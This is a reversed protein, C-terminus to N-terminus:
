PATLVVQVPISYTGPRDLTWNYKSRLYLTQVTSNTAGGTAISTITASMDTYPGAPATAWQLDSRPKNNRATVPSFSWTTSSSSISVRWNANSRVEFTVSGPSGFGATYSADTPQPITVTSSALTVRTAQQITINLSSTATGGLTCTAQNNVTCTIQAGAQNSLGGVLVAVLAVLCSTRLTTV